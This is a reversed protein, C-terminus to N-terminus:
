AIIPILNIKLRASRKILLLSNDLIFDEEIIKLVEMPITVEPETIM